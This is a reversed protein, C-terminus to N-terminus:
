LRMGWYINTGDNKIPKFFIITKNQNNQKQKKQRM